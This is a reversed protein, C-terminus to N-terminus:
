KKVWKQKIGQKFYTPDEYPWFILKLLPRGQVYSFFERFESSKFKLNKLIENYLKKEFKKGIKEERGKRMELNIELYQNHEKDFRTVLTLKGTVFSTNSGCMLVERIIEPYIQLGYITTSLDNREYVYVFPLQNLQKFQFKKAISSLDYGYRKIIEVMESYSWVGGNDGIMYRVMPFVNDGTLIVENKVVEFNIHLPNYQALTPIKIISSFLDLFLKKNKLALRKILISEATEYAMAGIDASGYVNLNDLYFNEVGTRKVLYDRFTETFAEAAFLFRMKIKKLNIKKIPAEDVIDKIFPPYGILIVQDFNPALNKLANFIEEKNIGPTIISLPYNLRNAAIEFAKYTILGGIWVGMGFCIVVLTKQNKELRGNRLFTEIITSYQNDLQIQRPFYFPAGTSGSTSTFTLPKALTGDWCLKELPYRQLYSKKSILPLEQFDSWTKIKQPNIKYKKLFDKYAPVRIAVEHFLRLSGKQGIKEWENSKLNLIKNKHPTKTVWM